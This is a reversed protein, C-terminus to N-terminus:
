MDLCQLKEKLSIITKEDIPVLLINEGIKNENYSCHPLPWTYADICKKRLFIMISDRDKRSNFIIPFVQLSNDSIQSSTFLSKASRSEEIVKHLKISVINRRYIIQDIDIKKLLMLYFKVVNVGTFKRQYEKSSCENHKKKYSYGFYCLLAKVIHSSLGRIIEVSGIFDKKTSKKNNNDLLIAGSYLKLSKYLSSVLYDSFDDVQYNSRHLTLFSHAMDRVIIINEKKLLSVVNAQIINKVGFYDVLFILRVSHLKNKLDDYNISLDTNVKYLIINDTHVRIVDILTHCIYDPVLIKDNAMILEKEFINLIADRSFNFFIGADPIKNECSPKIYQYPSLERNIM